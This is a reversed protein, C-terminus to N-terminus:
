ILQEIKFHVFSSNSLVNYEKLKNRVDNLDNGIYLIKSFGDSDIEKFGVITFLINNINCDKECKASLVGASVYSDNKVLSRAVSQAKSHTEYYAYISEWEREVDEDSVVVAYITKM